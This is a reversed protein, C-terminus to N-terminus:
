RRAVIAWIGGCAFYVWAKEGLGWTEDWQPMLKFDLTEHLETGSSFSAQGTHKRPKLDQQYSARQVVSVYYLTPLKDRSWQADSLYGLSPAPIMPLTTWECTQYAISSIPQLGWRRELHREGQPRETHYTQSEECSEWFLCGWCHGLQFGKKHAPRQLGLADSQQVRNTPATGAETM